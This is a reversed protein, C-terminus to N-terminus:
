AEPPSPPSPLERGAAGQILQVFRGLRSRLEAPDHVYLSHIYLAREEPSVDVTLTGPTLSILGALLVTEVPGLDRVDLHVFAPHFLPRPRVIDRALTLNSLVLERVFGWTLTLVGAAARAYRSRGLARETLTIAAFGLICGEVLRGLSFEGQLLVWVIALVLNVALQNM